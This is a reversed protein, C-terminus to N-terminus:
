PVMSDDLTEAKALAQEKPLLNPTWGHEGEPINGSEQHIRECGPCFVLDGLYAEPDAEWEEQRTGCGRCVKSM